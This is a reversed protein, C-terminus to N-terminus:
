THILLATIMIILLIIIIFLNYSRRKKKKRKHLPLSMITTEILNPGTVLCNVEAIVDYNISIILGNLLFAHVLFLNNEVVRKKIPLIM